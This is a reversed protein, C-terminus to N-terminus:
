QSLILCKREQKKNREWLLTKMDNNHKNLTQKSEIPRPSVSRFILLTRLRKYQLTFTIMTWFQKIEISIFIYIFIFLTM